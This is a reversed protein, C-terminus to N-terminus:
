EANLVQETIEKLLLRIKPQVLDFSINDNKITIFLIALQINKARLACELDHNETRFAERLWRKVLNRDHAKKFHKKPVSFGVQFCVEEDLRVVEWLALIPYQFVKNGKKFLVDFLRQHTLKEKKPFANNVKM